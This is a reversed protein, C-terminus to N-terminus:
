PASLRLEIPSYVSFYSWYGENMVLLMCHELLIGKVLDNLLITELGLGSTITDISDSNKVQFGM